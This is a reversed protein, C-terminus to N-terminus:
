RSSRSTRSKWSTREKGSRSSSPVWMRRYQDLPLTRGRFAGFGAAQLAARARAAASADDFLGFYASGSGTLSVLLARERVLIGRIKRVREALEPAEVLAAEELQNSLTEYGSGGELRRAIFCIIMHGSERPTLSSDVRNFVAATSVALGPFAVVVPSRIQERLPYVEDGRGVGLATGGVLFYPVDAGLRAALLRLPEAGIELRWLRNLGMLVAAADSSGGGLGAGVPIRKRLEIRVGGAVRGYRQLDRAARWALNGEGEPVAPDDCAVEIGRPSLTLLVDDHLDITQFVTRLEHYGDERKRLVELGLNLKAFARLRLSRM